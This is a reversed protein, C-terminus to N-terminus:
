SLILTCPEVFKLTYLFPCGSGAKAPCLRLSISFAIGAEVMLLISTIVSGPALYSASPVDVIRLMTVILLTRICPNDPLICVFTLEYPEALSPVDSVVCTPFSVVVM